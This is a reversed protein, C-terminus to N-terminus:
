NNKLAKYEYNPEAYKVYPMKECEAVVNKVSKSSTIKFVRVNLAPIEKIQKLGVESEMVDIQAEKVGSIFKVLVEPAAKDDGRQEDRLLGTVVIQMAKDELMMQGMERMGTDTMDAKAVHLMKKFMRRRLHKNAAIQEMMMEVASSDQMLATIQMQKQQDKKAATQKNQSFATGCIIMLGITITLITIRKM